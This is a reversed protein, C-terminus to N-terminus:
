YAQLSTFWNEFLTVKADSAVPISAWGNGVHHVHADNKTASWHTLGDGNPNGTKIFNSWYTNM